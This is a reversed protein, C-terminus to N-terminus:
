SSQIVLLIEGTVPPEINIAASDCVEVAEIIIDVSGTQFGSFSIIRCDPPVDYISNCIM